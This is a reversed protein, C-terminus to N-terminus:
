FLCSNPIDNGVSDTVPVDCYWGNGRSHTLYHGDPYLPIFRLTVPDALRVYETTTSDYPYLRNPHLLVPTDESVSGFRKAFLMTDRDSNTYYLYLILTQPPRSITGLTKRDFLPYFIAEPSIACIPNSVSSGASDVVPLKFPVYVTCVDGLHAPLETPKPLPAPISPVEQGLVPAFPQSESVNGCASMLVLLGLTFSRFLM